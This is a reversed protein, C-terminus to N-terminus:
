PACCDTIVIDPDLKPKTDTWVAYKCRAGGPTPITRATCHAGSCSVDTVCGPHVDIGLTGGGSRTWWHIMVPVKNVKGHATVPDPNVSLTAGTDDVCVIPAKSETTGVGSSCPNGRLLTGGSPNSSATCFTLAVLVIVLLFWRLLVRVEPM